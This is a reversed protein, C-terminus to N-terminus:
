KISIAGAPCSNKAEMIEDSDEEKYQEKVKAKEGAKVEFHDPCLSECTACAICLDGDIEIKKM